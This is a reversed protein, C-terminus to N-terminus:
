PHIRRSQVDGGDLEGEVHTVVAGSSNWVTIRVSDKLESQQGQDSAFVDFRYGNAGNWSGNGSFRVTDAHSPDDRFAVFTIDRAVFRDSRGATTVQLTFSGRENRESEVVDFRFENRLGDQRIFGDGRMAGPTSVDSITVTFSATGTNHAADTAECTVTTTGIRFTSGSAPTCVPALDGDVRDTATATYSVAAGGASTASQTIPAPVTVVPPTTDPVLCRGEAQYSYVVPTTDWTESTLEVILQLYRSDPLPGPPAQLDAASSTWPGLIPAAHLAALDDAARAFIRVETGAPTAASWTAQTWRAREGGRCGQAAATYQGRPKLKLQMDLGTFDSYTYPNPGAPFTDVLNGTLAHPAPNGSAPDIHLRSVNSTAQNVVWVDGDFDVGVAVGINGGVDYVDSSGAADADIRAVRSNSGGHMSTWVNGRRDAAVGRTIWGALNPITVTMWMNTEPDYRHVRPGTYAGLWIRDALDVAIGEAGGPSLVGVRHIPAPMGRSDIAILPQSGCCGGIAWVRGQSDIAAGYPQFTVGLATTLNGTQPVRQMLSGDTGNIQYFAQETYMGVWVNGPQRRGNVISGAEIAIAHAQWGTKAGIAVTMAICEDAEGPFEAPDYINIHGDGNIDRSTDIIQNGNGDACDAVANFIKTVTPQTVPARNAIWVDGNFDVATRSPRHEQGWREFTRGVHNVVSQHTVTAYRAIERGTRTDIKSVTGELDNAIWLVRSRGGSMDLVLNGVQDTGVGDCVSASSEPACLFPGQASMGIGGATYSLGLALVVQTLRRM